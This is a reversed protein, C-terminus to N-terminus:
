KITIKSKFFELLVCVSCMLVCGTFSPLTRSPEQGLDPFSTNAGMSSTQPLPLGQGSSRQLSSSPHNKSGSWPSLLKPTPHGLILLLM